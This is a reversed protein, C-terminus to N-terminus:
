EPARQSRGAAGLGPPFGSGSNLARPVGLRAPFPVQPSFPWGHSARSLSFSHSSSTQSRLPVPISQGAEEQGMPLSWVM